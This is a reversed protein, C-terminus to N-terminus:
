DNCQKSGTFPCGGNCYLDTLDNPTVTGGTEAHIRELLPRRPVVHGDGIRSVTAVTTGIRNAFASKTVGNLNLFDNLKM